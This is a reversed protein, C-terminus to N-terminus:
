RYVVTMMMKSLKEDNREINGKTLSIKDMEENIQSELQELEERLREEEDREKAEKEEKLSETKMVEENWLRLENLMSDIDEHLYDFLRGVPVSLKALSEISQRIKEINVSDLSDDYGSKNGDNNGDNNGDQGMGEEFDRKTEVLKQVLSGKEQGFSGEGLSNAFTQGDTPGFQGSEVDGGLASTRGSRTGDDTQIHVATEEEDDLQATDTIVAVPKASFQSVPKASFQSDSQSGALSALTDATPAEEVEIKIRPPAPRATKPRGSTKPRENPVPEEQEVVRRPKKPTTVKPSKVSGPEEPRTEEATVKTSEKKPAEELPTEKQVEKPAEKGIPENSTAEKPSEKRKPSVKKVVKGGSQTSKKVGNKLPTKKQGSPQGDPKSQQGNQGSPATAASALAQLFLNTKEAELGAVIKSPKVDLSKGTLSM